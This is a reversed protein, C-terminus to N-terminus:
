KASQSRYSPQVTREPPFKVAVTTGAGVESDISLSGGHLEALRLSLHVGLGTGEGAITFDPRVQQFPAMVKPLDEPSIGIGTDAVELVIGGDQM